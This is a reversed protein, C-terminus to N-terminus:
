GSYTFVHADITTLKKAAKAGNLLAHSPQFCGGLRAM